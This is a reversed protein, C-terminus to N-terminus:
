RAAHRAPRRDRRDHRPLLHPRGGRGPAAALPRLRLDADPLVELLGLNTVLARPKSTRALNAFIYEVPYGREAMLRIVQRGDMAHSENYLPDHFFSRRKVIPCGARVMLAVHDMIPHQSPYDAAPFAAHYRSAATWSGRRSGARTARRDLVQVVHDDAHRGLLRALRRLHVDPAPGRDLPVASHGDMPVARDFAHEDTEGHETIGWFDVDARAEMDEFLPDFSGVPGFFTCNMLLIEDFEELRGAGFVQMAEKYAWVDFGLNEREWVEDAM